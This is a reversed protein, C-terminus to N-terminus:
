LMHDAVVTPHLRRDTVPLSVITAFTHLQLQANVALASCQVFETQSSSSEALLRNSGPRVFHALILPEHLSALTM